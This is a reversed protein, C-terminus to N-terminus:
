TWISSKNVNIVATVLNLKTWHKIPTTNPAATMFVWFSQKMKVNTKQVGGELFTHGRNMCDPQSHMIRQWLEWYCFIRSSSTNSLARVILSATVKPLFSCVASIGLLIWKVSAPPSFVWRGQSFEKLDLAFLGDDSWVFALTIYRHQYLHSCLAENINAPWTRCSQLLLVTIERTSFM